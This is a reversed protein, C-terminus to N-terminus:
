KESSDCVLRFSSYTEIMEGQKAPEIPVEWRIAYVKEEEGKHNSHAFEEITVAEKAQIGEIELLGTVNGSQLVVKGDRVVPPIQTVLNEVARRVTGRPYVFRDTVELSGDKLSFRITRDLRDLLGKEYAEALNMSVAAEKIEGDKGPIGQAQFDRCGYEKGACQGKGDVIPVSHGFSNNCLIEYRKESFYDRTYEGAGLDTLLMQGQAEYLFHGVDNHNHPENNHGGKCAFGAGSQSSGICWQADPLIELRSQVPNHHVNGDVATRAHERGEGEECSLRELYKQTELLDMKLAAFRFCDDDLLGAARDLNPLKAGPFCEALACSLGVRFKDRSDGDSFSVTRGDAFYCKSQFAAMAARKDEEGAAFGAWDGRLLDKEGNSYEYLERAFNVFYTMGYTFYGLGEMCTGDEAFGSIYYPLSDCIRELCQELYEKQNRMLHLCASGISGACVANWNNESNEWGRYPAQSTFFPRFVRWEINKIIRCRLKESIDECLRDTLEALTQATESAFLDVTVQWQNDRRDVHAPLAWCEEDCVSNMIAELKARVEESVRGLEQKEVLAKLGFVALMKRRTFYVDEYKLRNGTREFLGFLEETIQPMELDKMRKAESDIQGKFSELFERLQQIDVMGM